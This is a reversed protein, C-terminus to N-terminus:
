GKETSSRRLHVTELRMAMDAGSDNGHYVSGSFSIKEDHTGVRYEIGVVSVHM